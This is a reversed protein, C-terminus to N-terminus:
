RFRQYIRRSGTLFVHMNVARRDSIEDGLMIVCRIRAYDNGIWFVLNASDVYSHDAGDQFSSQHM